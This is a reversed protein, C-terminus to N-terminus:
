GGGGDRDVGSCRREVLSGGGEARKTAECVERVVVRDVFRECMGCLEEMLRRETRMVIAAECGDFEWVVCSEEM